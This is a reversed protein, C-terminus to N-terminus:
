QDSQGTNVERARHQGEQAFGRMLFVLFLITYDVGDVEAAEDIKDCANLGKQGGWLHEPALATTSSDPKEEQAM